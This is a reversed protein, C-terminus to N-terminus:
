LRFEEVRWRRDPAGFAMVVADAKDPSRGIRNRLDQKDELRIRQQETWSWQVACLEDSLEEDDPLACRGEELRDRLEWYAQARLNLFRDPFRASSGANFEHGGFGMECLRDFVGSGIGISDVVIRGWDTEPRMHYRRAIQAVRNATEMTDTDRWSVIEVIRDGQRVAVVTADAGFRAPDCAVVPEPVPNRHQDYVPVVGHRAVAATVWRRDILGQEGRTPFEGLVRAAYSNSNRGYDQEIRRVGEITIAGPIVEREEVVNPHDLASLRIAHWHPAQSTRYFRGAPEIPNGIALIRDHQGVACAIMAEWGWEPIGQAESLIGLVKPHHFGTLSSADSSTFALIGAGDRGVRLATRYLEGPLRPTRNFLRAVQQMTNEIVQRQTPATLLALGGEVVAWYISLLAAVFDKGIGNASRVVVLPHERVAEVIEVQGSWLQVGMVESFFDLPRGRYKEFESVTVADRHEAQLEGIDSWLRELARSLTSM